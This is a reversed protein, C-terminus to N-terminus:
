NLLVHLFHRTNPTGEVLAFFWAFKYALDNFLGFGLKISFFYAAVAGGLILLLYIKHLKRM